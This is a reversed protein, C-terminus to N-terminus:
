LWRGRLFYYAISMVFRMLPLPTIIFVLFIAILVIDEVLPIWFWKIKDKPKIKGTKKEYIKFTVLVSLMMISCALAFRAFWAVSYDSEYHWLTSGDNLDIIVAEASDDTVFATDKTVYNAQYPQVLSGSVERLIKGTTMNIEVLRHNFSDTILMRSPELKNVDGYRPWILNLDSPTTWTIQKATYNIEVIRNNDSDSTIITQNTLYHANHPHYLLEHHGPFGFYWTIDQENAKAQQRAATFNIEYILDFNRPSILMYETGNRMRFDVNNLHTWEMTNPQNVICDKTFSSNVCTWNLDALDYRWTVQGSVGIEIISDDKCNAVILSGDPRYTAGHPEDLQVQPLGIRKTVAGTTLNVIVIEDMNHKFSINPLNALLNECIMATGNPLLTGGTVMVTPLAFIGGFYGFNALLIAGMVILSKITGYRTRKVIKQIIKLIFAIDRRELASHLLLFHSLQAPTKMPSKGM